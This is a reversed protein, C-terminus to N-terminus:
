ISNRDVIVGALVEPALEGLQEAVVGPAAPIAPRDSLGRRVIGDPWAKPSGTRGPRAGPRSGHGPGFGIPM